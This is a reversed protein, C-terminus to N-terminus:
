TTTCGFRRLILYGSVVARITQRVIDSARRGRDRGRGAPLRGGAARQVPDACVARRCARDARRPLRLCSAAGAGRDRRRVRRARRGRPRRRAPRHAQRVGRDVRPRAPRAHAPRDGRGRSGDEALREAAALADHVLRSLAVVTVDSGERLTAAQGIRVPAAREPVEEKRFYLTKNEIFVVPNPDAIAAALLGAADVARSPMVVKLGPVHTLWSELSQSHQAAGRQGAGGQTRLVMPVTLQGGSMFHAKAAANVLQDLALTIFDVFMIELVPRLGSQAAGIAVGTIAAESIPTNIVRETGFEEALGATATYPGGEAVDEGLVFVREDARMAAASRPPSRRSTPRRLCGRLGAREILEVPPFPSERAFRLAREIEAAADAEISGAEGLERTLRAIPDKEQWEEDALAERYAGPDGEYHGRLRHTLCELLFPGHGARARALFGGFADWIAGVDAGEVTTREVDYPAVVDSVREVNTHASRPTFEAFGNNECVLLLPLGWLTALNVSENFIGGQVAGDGFFVVAVSGDGRRRAALASGLAIPINGGVVGTAGMFGHEADVLHMSGGLGRCLGTDRGLLEALLRDLPAGKAIAHGHARHGSYVADDDRLQGCVAAAVGEGGISLHILGEVEGSRVLVGVQEEFLRIRWMTALLSEAQATDVVGNVPASGLVQQVATVIKDEDPLVWAELPESYPITADRATVQVIPAKLSSFGHEAVEGAIVTSVSAHRTAQDVLVLRGTKDVSELITQTDLPALTRPDIVEAEIGEAALQEAAGLARDVTWGTAVITVDGGERRIAAEGFPVLYEGDPVEGHELTLLYHHLYVVPNDDRIATAMLGKADAATSPMVVKLGPVGMFLAGITGTHQGAWGATFGFGAKLVLPVKVQGGSMARFRPAENIVQDMAVLMFEAMYLEVVPRFGAIAAGIAMGIEATESIPTVRVRDKGFADVYPENETTAMNQGFYLVTDDREMELRIAEDIAAIFPLEHAM